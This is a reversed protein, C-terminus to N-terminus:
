CESSSCMVDARVQPVKLFTVVGLAGSCGLGLLNLNRGPLLSPFLIEIGGRPFFVAGVPM